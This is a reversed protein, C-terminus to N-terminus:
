EIAGVEKLSQLFAKVDKKATEEDIEYEELLLSSLEDETQAKELNSFLFEGASNLTIIKSKLKEDLFIVVKEGAIERLLYESKIKM